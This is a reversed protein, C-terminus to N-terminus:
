SNADSSAVNFVKVMLEPVREGDNAEPVIVYVAETAFLTVLM